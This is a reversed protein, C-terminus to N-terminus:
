EAGQDGSATVRDRQGDAARRAGSPSEPITEGYAKDAPYRILQMALDQRQASEGSLVRRVADILHGNLADKPLYGAAGVEVARLLYDPDEHATVILISTVPLTRGQDRPHSRPRGDRAHQRGMLVIDPRLKRCLALDGRGSEAEGVVELDSQAALVLRLGTM